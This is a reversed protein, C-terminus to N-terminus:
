QTRPIVPQIILLQKLRDLNGEASESITKTLPNSINHLIEPDSAIVHFETNGEMGLIRSLASGLYFIRGEPYDQYPVGIDGKYQELYWSETTLYAFNNIVQNIAIANEEPTEKTTLALLDYGDNIRLSALSITLVGDESVVFKVGGSNGMFPVYGTEKIFIPTALKQPVELTIHRMDLDGADHFLGDLSNRVPDIEPTLLWVHPIMTTDCSSNFQDFENLFGDYNQYSYVRTFSPNKGEMNIAFIVKRLLSTLAGAQEPNIKVRGGYLDSPTYRLGEIDYYIKQWQDTDDLEFWAEGDVWIKNDKVEYQYEELVEPVEPWYPTPTPTNNPTSTATATPPITATYTETPPIQTPIEPQKQCSNLLLSILLIASLFFYKMQYKENAFDM